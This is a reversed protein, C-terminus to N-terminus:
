QGFRRWERLPSALALALVSPPNLERASVRILFYRAAHIKNLRTIDTSFQKPDKFHQFGDFEWLTHERPHLLDGHTFPQGFRDVLVANVVPEPFGLRVIIRRLATEASSDTGPRIIDLAARAKRIGRAGRRAAVAARLQDITGLPNIRRVIADGMQVLEGVTATSALDLWTSIPDTAPLGSAIVVSPERDTRHGRVGHTEPARGGLAVVDPERTLLRRPLRMEHLVAATRHSFAHHAPLLPMYYEAFARAAAVPDTATRVADLNWTSRAVRVGPFPSVLDLARLRDSSVGRAIAEATRFPAQRLQDPLDSPQPGPPM